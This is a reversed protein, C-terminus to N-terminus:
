PVMLFGVMVGIFGYPVGLSIELIAISGFIRILVPSSFYEIRSIGRAVGPM